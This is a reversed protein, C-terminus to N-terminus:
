RDLVPLPEALWLARSAHERTILSVVPVPPVSRKSELLEAGGTQQSAFTKFKWKQTAANHIYQAGHSLDDTFFMAPLSDYESVRM